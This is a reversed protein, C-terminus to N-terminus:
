ISPMGIIARLRPFARPLFYVTFIAIYAVVLGTLKEFWTHFYVATMLLMWWSLGAVGAVFKFRWGDAISADGDGRIAIGGAGRGGAAPTIVTDDGGGAAAGGEKEVQASRVEESTNGAAVVVTREERWGREKVFVWGVEFCLMASGLVLMFVHGSLDHGGRWQGGVAKCARSTIIREVEKVVTAKTTTMRGTADDGSGALAAADCVGGTIRFGRDVLAPGFFWQTVAIWWATVLTWRLLAQTRRPTMVPLGSSSGAGSGGGGGGNKSSRNGAGAGVVGLVGILFALSTWLWGFKVFFLNFVNNKQAFYSPAVGAPHSRTAADYPIGRTTPSLLSYFSGLLLTAPYAALVLTELPTPLLPSRQHRSAAPNPRRRPPPSSPPPM